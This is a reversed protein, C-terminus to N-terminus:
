DNELGLERAIDDLPLGQPREQQFKRLREAVEPKLELGADPDDEEAALTALAERVAEQVLAQVEERILARLEDVTLDTVRIASM